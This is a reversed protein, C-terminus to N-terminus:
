SRGAYDDEFDAEQQEYGDEGPQLEYLHAEADFDEGEDDIDPDRLAWPDVDDVDDALSFVSSFVSWAM